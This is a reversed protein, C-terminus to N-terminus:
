GSNGELEALRRQLSAIKDDKESLMEQQRKIIIDKSSIERQLMEIEALQLSGSENMKEMASLIDSCTPRLIPKTETCMLIFESVQPYTQRLWPAVVRGARCDNFGKAREHESTFNSFLELLILGLSYIDASSDYDDTTVQEPSAYAATGVGATHVAESNVGRPFVVADEHLDLSADRMTRSLGFDGIMFTDEEGAFINSPKLDRHIINQSHVHALGKVIQQFIVFSPRARAQREKADFELCRANRQRIWDALTSPNCLQMQIYLSIHYSFGKNKEKKDGSKPILELSDQRRIGNSSSGLHETWESVDSDGDDDDSRANECSPLNAWDGADGYTSSSNTAWNFGDDIIAKLQQVSADIEDESQLRDIVHKIDTLRQPVENRPSRPPEGFEDTEKKRSSDGSMWSPELWSTYYRVCNPHDLKALCRVERVVLALTDAYFGETSFKVCKIAYPKQELKHIARHVSGFSGTALLSMEHFERQYRSLLLPHSNVSWSPNNSPIPRMVQHAGNATENNVGTYQSNASDFSNNDPGSVSSSSMTHQRTQTTQTTVSNVRSISPRVVSSGYISSHISADISEHRELHERIASAKRQRQELHESSLNAPDTTGAPLPLPPPRASGTFQSQVSLRHSKKYPVIAGPSAEESSGVPSAASHVPSVPGRGEDKEAHQDSESEIRDGVDYVGKPVLGLDFLFGISQEDLIGREYLAITHVVFTRPTADHLSCVQGLLMLLIAQRERDTSRPSLSGAHISNREM